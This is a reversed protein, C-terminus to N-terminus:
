VRLSQELAQIATELESGPDVQTRVEYVLDPLDPLARLKVADKATVLIPAGDSFALETRTFEHHDPFPHCEVLLGLSQLSDFFRQPNGIGAVAHVRQGHFAALPSAEGTSLRILDTPLLRFCQRTSTQLLSGGFGGTLSAHLNDCASEGQGTYPLQIAILDAKELERISERLPGAPLLWRNGLGRAGDIVVIGAERAMALHQLGDDSFVLNADTHEALYEVAAARDICVCVPVGTQRYLMVPEDGATEASDQAGLLHPHEHRAGGYGRSVIAPRWGAERFRDVLYGCLPTKGTGGVSLNGVVVVPLPLARVKKLGSKYALRRIGLLLGYVVSVPWLLCALWGRSQWSREIARM